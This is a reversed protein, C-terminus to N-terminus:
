SIKSLVQDLDSLSIEHKQPYIILNRTPNVRPKKFYDYIERRLKNRQTAKKAIKKSVVVSVKQQDSSLYYVLFDSLFIKKGNKKVLLFDKRNLRNKQPLM